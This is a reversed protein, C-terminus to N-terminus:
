EPIVGQITDGPAIDIKLWKELDKFNSLQVVNCYDFYNTLFLTDRKQPESHIINHL